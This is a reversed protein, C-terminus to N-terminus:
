VMQDVLELAIQQINYKCIKRQVFGAIRALNEALICEREHRVDVIFLMLVANELLLEDALRVEHTVKCKLIDALIYPLEERPEVLELELNVITHLDHGVQEALLVVRKERLVHRVRVDALAFEALHFKEIEARGHDVAVDNESLVFRFQEPVQDSSVFCVIRDPIFRCSM